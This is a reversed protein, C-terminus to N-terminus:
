YNEEGCPRRMLSWGTKGDTDKTRVVMAQTLKGNDVGGRKISFRKFVGTVNLNESRLFTFAQKVRKGYVNLFHRAPGRPTFNGYSRRQQGNCEIKTFKGDSGKDKGNQDQGHSHESLYHNPSIVKNKISLCYSVGEKLSKSPNSNKIDADRLPPLINRVYGCKAVGDKRIYIISYTWDQYEQKNGVPKSKDGRSVCAIGFFRGNKMHGVRTCDNKGSSKAQAPELQFVPMIVATKALLPEAIKSAKIPLKDSFNIEPTPSLSLVIGALVAKGFQLPSIEPPRFRVRDIGAISPELETKNQM